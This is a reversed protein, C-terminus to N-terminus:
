NIIKHDKLQGIRDWDLGMELLIEETHEGHAPARTLNGIPTEDFQSPSAVSRYSTGDGNQVDPLFGNELAQPDETIELPSLVPAWVGETSALIERWEALNRTRFVEDLVNLLAIRNEYRGQSASFRPDDILDERGLHRALDPWWRDAQLMVLCLWREDKTPFVNVLPNAMTTRSNYQMPKGMAAGTIAQNSIWMGTNYLSTDVVAGRGTRERRFLAAAIAGAMNLGGSLDGLSGPLLPPPQGDVPPTMLYAMGGRAWASAMDFGGREGEEGLQGQGSGRGYVIGQNRVRIDSIDIRLKKRVAPLYNTIFVDAAAVLQYLLEVGEPRSIDLGIGRKGRNPVEMMPNAGTGSSLTNFLGRQPDGTLPHEVKIVDAGWDALVAGATPVFTWSAVEIVKVGELMDYM